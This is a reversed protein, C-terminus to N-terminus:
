GRRGMAWVVVPYEAENALSHKSEDYNTWGRGEACSNFDAIACDRNGWSGASISQPDFGGEELLYQLGDSTWRTYDSPAGHVQILFPTTVVFWGSPRLMRHVNRVARYPYRVHELVQEALVIDFSKGLVIDYCLDFDPYHVSQYSKWGRNSWGRGSIELADMEAVPLTSVFAGTEGDM